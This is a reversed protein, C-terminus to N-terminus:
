GAPSGAALASLAAALPDSLETGSGASVIPLDGTPLDGTPVDPLGFAATAFVASSPLSCPPRCAIVESFPVQNAPRV